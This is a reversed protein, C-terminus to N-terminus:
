SLIEHAQGKMDHSSSMRIPGNDSIRHHLVCGPQLRRGAYAPKVPGLSGPLIENNEM